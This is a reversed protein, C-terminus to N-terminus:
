YQKLWQNSKGRKFMEPINYVNMRTPFQPTEKGKWFFCICYVTVVTPSIRPRFSPSARKLMLVCYHKKKQKNKLIQCKLKPSFNCPKKLFSFPKLLLKLHSNYLFLFLQPTEARALYLVSVSAPQKLVLLKKKDSAKFEGFIAYNKEM